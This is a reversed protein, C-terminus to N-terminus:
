RRIEEALERVSAVWIDRLMALMIARLRMEMAVVYPPGPWIWITPTVKRPM